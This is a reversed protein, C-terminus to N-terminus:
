SYEERVGAAYKLVTELRTKLTGEFYAVDPATQVEGPQNIRDKIPPYKEVIEALTDELSGQNRILRGVEPDAKLRREAAKLEQLLERGAPHMIHRAMRYCEERSRQRRLESLRLAEAEMQKNKEARERAPARTAARSLDLVQDSTDILTRFHKDTVMTQNWANVAKGRFVEKAMWTPEGNEDLMPFIKNTQGDVYFYRGTSNLKIINAWHGAGGNADQACCVIYRNGTFQSRGAHGPKFAAFFAAETQPNSTGYIDMFGLKNNGEVDVAVPLFKVDIQENTGKIPHRGMGRLYHEVANVTGQCDANLDAAVERTQRIEAIGKALQRVEELEQPMVKIASYKPQAKVDNIIREIKGDAVEQSGHQGQLMKLHKRLREEPWNDFIANQIALELHHDARNCPVEFGDLNMIGERPYKAELDERVPVPLGMGGPLVEMAYKNLPVPAPLQRIAALLENCFREPSEGAVPLAAIDPPSEPKAEKVVPLDVVNSNIKERRLNGAFEIMFASVQSGQRIGDVMRKSLLGRECALEFDEATIDVGLTHHKRVKEFAARRDQGTFGAGDQETITPRSAVPGPDVHRSVKEMQEFARHFRAIAKRSKGQDESLIQEIANQSLLRSQRAFVFDDNSGQFNGLQEKVKKFAKTQWDMHAYKRSNTERDCAKDIAQDLALFSEEYDRLDEQPRDLHESCMRKVSEKEKQLFQQLHQKWNIDRRCIANTVADGLEIAMQEIVKKDQKQIVAELLRAEAIHITSLSEQLHPSVIERLKGATMAAHKVERETLKRRGEVSTYTKRVHQLEPCQDLEVDRNFYLTVYRGFHGAEGSLWWSGLVGHEELELDLGNNRVYCEDRSNQSAESTHRQYFDMFSQPNFVFM